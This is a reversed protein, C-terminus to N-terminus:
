IEFKCNGVELTWSDFGLFLIRVEPIGAAVEWSMERPKHILMKTSSALYRM